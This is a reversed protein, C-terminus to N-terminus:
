YLNVNIENWKPPKCEKAEEEDEEWGTMSNVATGEPAM